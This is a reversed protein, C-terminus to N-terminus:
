QLPEKTHIFHQFHGNGRLVRSTGQSLSEVNHATDHNWKSLYLKFKFNNKFCFKLNHRSGSDNNQVVGRFCKTDKRSGKQRKSGHGNQELLILVMKEQLVDDLPWKYPNWEKLDKRNLSVTNVTSKSSPLHPHPARSYMYSMFTVEHWGPSILPWQRFPLLWGCACPLNSPSLSASCPGCSPATSPSAHARITSKCWVALLCPFQFCLLFFHPLVIHFITVFLKLRIRYYFINPKIHLM